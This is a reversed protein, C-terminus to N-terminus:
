GETRRRRRVLCCGLLSGGLLALSAPEPVGVPPPTTSPVVNVVFSDDPTNWSYVYQGPTLGLGALTTNDFTATGSLSGGSVFGPPVALYNTDDDIGVTDGAATTAHTVAGSGFSSPGTFGTYIETDGAVGLAILGVRPAVSPSADGPGLDTLGTLDITGSGSAIVNNGVQTINVIFEARASSVSLGAFAAIILLPRHM